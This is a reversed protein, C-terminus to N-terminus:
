SVVFIGSENDSSFAELQERLALILRLYENTSANPKRLVIVKPPWGFLENLSVFDKDKTVITYGHEAAFFRIEIDSATELGCNVM